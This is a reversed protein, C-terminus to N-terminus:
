SSQAPGPDDEVVVLVRVGETLLVRGGGRPVVIGDVNTTGRSEDFAFVPVLGKEEAEFRHFLEDAKDLPLRVCGGSARQGLESVERAGVAAHLAVGTMQTRYSYNLFMAWPMEADDWKASYAVPMFREPDLQFLGMPTSTFYQEDEERGTSVPFSEVFSLKTGTKKFYFLHQAWAGAAAKSVYLYVDFYPALAPPVRAIVHAAVAGPETGALASDVTLTVPPLAAAVVVHEPLHSPVAAAIAPASPSARKPLVAVKRISSKAAVNTTREPLGIFHVRPGALVVALTMACLLLATAGALERLSGM